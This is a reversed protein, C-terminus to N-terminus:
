AEPGLWMGEEPHLWSYQMSTNYMIGYYYEDKLAVKGLHMLDGSGNTNTAEVAVYIENEGPYRIVVWMHKGIPHDKYSFMLRADYGKGKLLAWCIQSTNSCDFIDKQYKKPYRYSNLTSQLEDMWTRNEPAPHKLEVYRPSDCDKQM